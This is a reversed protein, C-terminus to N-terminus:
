KLLIRQNATHATWPMTRLITFYATYCKSHNVELSSESGTKVSGGKWNRIRYKAKESM